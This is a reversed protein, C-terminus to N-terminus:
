SLNSTSIVWGCRDNRSREKGDPFVKDTEQLALRVLAIDYSSVYRSASVEELDKLISQAEKRKGALAYGHGLRALAYTSGISSTGSM